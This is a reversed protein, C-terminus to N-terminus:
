FSIKRRSRPFTWFFLLEFILSLLSLFLLFMQGQCSLNLLVPNGLHDQFHYHCCCYRLYDCWSWLDTSSWIWWENTLGRRRVSISSRTRELWPWDLATHFPQMYRPIFSANRISDIWLSGTYGYERGERQVRDSQRLSRILMHNGWKSFPSSLIGINCHDQYSLQM